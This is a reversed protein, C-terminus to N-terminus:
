NMPTATYSEVGSKKWKNHFRSNKTYEEDTMTVNYYRDPEETPQIFYTQCLIESGKRIFFKRAPNDTLEYAVCPFEQTRYSIDNWYIMSEMVFGLFTLKKEENVGYAPTGEETNKDYFVNVEEILASSLISTKRTPLKSPGRQVKVPKKKHAHQRFYKTKNYKPIIFADDEVSAGAYSAVGLFLGLVKLNFPRMITTVVYPLM